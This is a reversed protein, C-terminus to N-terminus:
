VAPHGFIEPWRRNGEGVIGYANWDWWLDIGAVCLAKRLTICSQSESSHEDAASPSVLGISDSSSCCRNAAPRRYSQSSVRHRRKRNRSARCHRVRSPPPPRTARPHPDGKPYLQRVNRRRM